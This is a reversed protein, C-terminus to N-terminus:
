LHIEGTPRFSKTVVSLDFISRMKTLNSTLITMEVSLLFSNAYFCIIMNFKLANIMMELIKMKQFDTLLM